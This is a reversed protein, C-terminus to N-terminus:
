THVFWGDGKNLSVTFSPASGDAPQLPGQFILGGIWWHTWGEIPTFRQMTIGFSLPAFDVDLICKTDMGQTKDYRGGERNAYTALYRLKEKLQERLGTQRAHRFVERLRDKAAQNYCGLM